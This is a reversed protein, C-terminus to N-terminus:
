RRQERVAAAKVALVRGQGASAPAERVTNANPTPPNRAHLRGHSGFERGKLRGKLAMRPSNMHDRVALDGDVQDLTHLLDAAREETARQASSGEAKQLGRRLAEENGRPHRRMQRDRLSPSAPQREAPPLAVKLGVEERAPRSGTM